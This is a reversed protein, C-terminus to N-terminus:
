KSPNTTNNDALNLWYGDADSRLIRAGNPYGNVEPNTAFTADYPYGGGANLWNISNTAEYLVGNMDLGSPPVGGAVLPTRTLPPFGDEYSAAGPTIGVQSDLPITNKGGAFAFAKLIKAPINSLQM